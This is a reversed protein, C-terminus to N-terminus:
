EAPLIRAQESLENMRGQYDIVQPVEANVDAVFPAAMAWFVLALTLGSQSRSTSM